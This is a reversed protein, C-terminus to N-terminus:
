STSSDANKFNIKFGPFRLPLDHFFKLNQGNNDVINNM